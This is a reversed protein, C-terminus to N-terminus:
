FLFLDGYGFFIVCFCGVSPVRTVCFLVIGVWLCVVCFWFVLLPLGWSCRRSSVSVVVPFDASRLWDTGAVGWSVGRLGAVVCGRSLFCLSFLCGVVFSNTLLFARSTGGVLLVVAIDFKWCPPSASGASELYVCLFVYFLPCGSFNIQVM